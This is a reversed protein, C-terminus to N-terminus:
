SKNNTMKYHAFAGYLNANSSFRGIELKVDRLDIEEKEDSFKNVAIQLEELFEERNTIAGSFIIKEPNTTYKLVSILFALSLYYETVAHVYKSVGREYNEFIDKGSILQGSESVQNSLGIMGGYGSITSDKYPIYGFEGGFFSSGTIIKGDNILCGGVGSGLVIYALSNTNESYYVESLGACNADNEITVSINLEKELEKKLNGGCPIYDIASLGYGKGTKSDISGPSAISIGEYNGEFFLNVIKNKLQNFTEPVAFTNIQSIVGQQNFSTYKISSGGIDIVLIDKM